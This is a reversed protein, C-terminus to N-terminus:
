QARARDSSPSVVVPSGMPKVAPHRLEIVSWAPWFHALYRVNLANKPQKAKVQPEWAIYSRGDLAPNKERQKNKHPERSREGIACFDFGYRSFFFGARVQGLGPDFV